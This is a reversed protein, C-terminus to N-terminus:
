RAGLGSVDDKSSVVIWEGGASSSWNANGQVVSQKRRVTKDVAAKSDGAVTWSTGPDTGVSGFVDIIVGDKELTIADNGNFNCVNTHHAIVGGLLSLTAGPASYVLVAGPALTVTGSLTDLKASNDAGHTADHGNAYLKIMYKSLDADTSGANYIELYKNNSSGEIYESILLDSSGSPPPPNNSGELVDNTNRIMFQPTTNYLNVYGVWDGSSGPLANGAFSATPATYLTINGSADTLTQSGSYTGTGSAAANKIKVLTYEMESLNNKLQQITLEQSIVQIGTAAPSPKATGYRTKIELSGNYKILSDGTIDLVISDGINYTITGGIYVSIGHDGDQLVVAGSSINKSAADSIVVGGIKYAGLKIDKGTYMARIDKISKLQSNGDPPIPTSGDCRTDNLQVDATDRIVVQPTIRSNYPSKYYAYVATIAGNGNPLNIGAFYAYGSNRLVITDGECNKLTISADTKAAANAYTKATDATKVEFNNLRILTYAYKDNDSKLDQISVDTLAVSVNLEGKIVYKDRLRSPIGALKGGADPSTGIYMLGGDDNMYLGNAKIYVKRGIPYSTYLNYDDISIAIGGTSDQLIIQKYFNGSSDNAIVVGAIIVDTVISDANGPTHMAKLAAISTNASIDPPIYGPPADFKKNCSLILGVGLALLSITSYILLHKSRKMYIDKTRM